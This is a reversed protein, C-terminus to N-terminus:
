VMATVWLSYTYFGEDNLTVNYLTLAGTESNIEVSPSISCEESNACYGNYCLIQLGDVTKQYSGIVSVSDYNAKM